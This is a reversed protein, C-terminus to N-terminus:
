VHARGIEMVVVVMFEVVVMVMVVVVVVVVMGVMVVMNSLAIAYQYLITSTCERLARQFLILIVLGLHMIKCFM